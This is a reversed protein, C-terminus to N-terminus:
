KTFCNEGELTFLFFVIGRIQPFRRDLWLPDSDMRATEGFRCMAVLARNEVASRPNRHRQIGGYGYPMGSINMGCDHQNESANKGGDNENILEGGRLLM